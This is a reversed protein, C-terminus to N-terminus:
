LLQGFLIQPLYYTILKFAWFVLYQYYESHLDYGTIIGRSTKSLENGLSSVQLDTM